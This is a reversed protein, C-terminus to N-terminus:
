TGPHRTVWFRSTFNHTMCACSDIEVLSLDGALGPLAKSYISVCAGGSLVVDVGKARLHEQICAALDARDMEGVPKM